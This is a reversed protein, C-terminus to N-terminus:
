STKRYKREYLGKDYPARRGPCSERPCLQCNEYTVETPFRIGSVSKTPVMLFSDTLKVGIAEHPDGLLAFLPRQEALPWDGLSGPNMRATKGPRFHEELHADLAAGAANLAMRKISDAWFRELMDDMGSSWDELEAGCTAVYPFVRYAQDFNVRVIRSTLTIGDVVVTDDSKSEVYAPRYMARPRGVAQAARALERVRPADEGEAPVRINKLLQEVDFQFPIDDLIIADTKKM